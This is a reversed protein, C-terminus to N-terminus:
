TLEVQTNQKRNKSVDQRAVEKWELLDIKTSDHGLICQNFAHKKEIGCVDCTGHACKWPTFSPIRSSLGAGCHLIPHPIPLCCCSDVFDEVHGSLLRVWGAGNLLEKVFKNLRIYKALARMLHLLTSNVIDVCSQMM